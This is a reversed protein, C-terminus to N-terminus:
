QGKKRKMSEVIKQDLKQSIALVNKDLLDNSQIKKNMKERLFEIEERFKDTM